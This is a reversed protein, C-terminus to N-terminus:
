CPRHLLLWSAASQDVPTRPIARVFPCALYIPSGRGERGLCAPNSPGVAFGYAASHLALPASSTMTLSSGAPCCLGCALWPGRSPIAQIRRDSDRKPPHAQEAVTGHHASAPHRSRGAYLSWPQPHPGRKVRLHHRLDRSFERKFGYQPFGATRFKLPPPSSM